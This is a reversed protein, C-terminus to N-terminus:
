SRSAPSPGNWRLIALPDDMMGHRNPGCNPLVWNTMNDPSADNFDDPTMSQAFAKQGRIEIAENLNRADAYEDSLYDFVDFYPRDYEQPKPLGSEDNEDCVESDGTEPQVHSLEPDDHQNGDATFCDGM